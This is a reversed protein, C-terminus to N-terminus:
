PRARFHFEGAGHGPVWGRALAKRAVDAVAAPTIAGTFPPISAKVIAGERSEHALLIHGWDQPCDPNGCYPLRYWWRLREGDVVIPRSHKFAITM